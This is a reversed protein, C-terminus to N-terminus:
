SKGKNGLKIQWPLRRMIIVSVVAISFDSGTLTHFCICPKVSIGPGAAGVKPLHTSQMHQVTGEPTLLNRQAKWIFTKSTQAFSLRLLESAALPSNQLLM